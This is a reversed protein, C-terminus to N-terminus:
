GRQLLRNALLLYAACWAAAAVALLTERGAIGSQGALRTVAALGILATGLPLLRDRAPDGRSRQLQTRLMVNFTLTGIAGVTIGHLAAYPATGAVLTTGVLLLGVAVWAYGAGLCWLDPRGHCRWLQWRVLRVAVLTGGALACAGAAQWTRPDLALAAAIALAAIIGGEVRPQVRAQLNEGQRYRQGAAAPAILRGAMFAMLWAFLLVTALGVQGPSLWLSAPALDFAVAAAALLAVLPAVALNRLKRGRGLFKPAVAAALAAAFVAQTAIAAIEGPVAFWTTRAALWVAFVVALQWRPANGMLYGAVVALTFGFLLERAHALPSALAPIWPADGIMAQLSLPVLAAAYLAAAPFFLRYSWIRAAGTM